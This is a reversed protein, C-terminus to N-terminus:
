TVIDIDANFENAEAINDLTYEPVDITVPEYDDSSTDSTAVAATFELVPAGLDVAGSAFMDNQTAELEALADTDDAELEYNVVLSGEYVSVIKVQSAHIGLSATLRDVFSTTGGDAFFEAMTWEMRVLTQIADRPQIHLTCNATIYFELINQVGIYRNEGCFRQKIEGYASTADDWQNMEVISGDKVISRSEAGPYAIRLTAGMTKSLGNLLFRMKKAPTGTFTLDYVSGRSGEFVSGFRSMRIQGSYFGDWVHDMMSNLKNSMETGQKAVYIPQLSRDVKDDDESEFLLVGLKDAQCVYANMDVSPECSDVYPAFGTNNAIIQFDSTAWRPKSGEFKTNEFTFLVNLPATCPFAGCDKINAWKAPPEMIYAMADADVDVFLSDYFEVM